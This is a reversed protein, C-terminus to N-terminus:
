GDHMVVIKGDKSLHVDLEIGDAGTEIAKQFSLMTNEPYRSKFGRHGIILVM